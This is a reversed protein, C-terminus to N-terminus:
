ERLDKEESEGQKTNSDQKAGSHNTKHNKIEDAERESGLVQMLFCFQIIEGGQDISVRLKDWWHM